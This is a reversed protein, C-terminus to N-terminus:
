LDKVEMVADIRGRQPTFGYQNDKFLDNSYTYIHFIREIM